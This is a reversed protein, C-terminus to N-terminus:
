AGTSTESASDVTKQSKGKGRGVFRKRLDQHVEEAGPMDREALIKSSEYFMLADSMADEGSTKRRKNIIGLVQSALNQIGRLEQVDKFSMTFQEMDLYAPVMKPNQSAFAHSKEVFSLSKEGLGSKRKSGKAPQIVTYPEMAKLAKNLNNTVKKIVEAPVAPMNITTM